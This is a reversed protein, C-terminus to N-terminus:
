SNRLQYQYHPLKCCRLLWWGVGVAFFIALNVMLSQSALQETFTLEKEPTATTVPKEVPQSLAAFASSAATNENTNTESALVSLPISIIEPPYCLGAKACGQYRVKVVGDESVNSLKSIISLSNFFVETKGFFEDEIVEGSGLEPVDISAGKAIIEIKDKYLYYDDAIDWGVFLTSGQQDFDFVFAENVPLFTHQTPKLFDDLTNQAAWAPAMLVSLLFFLIFRM